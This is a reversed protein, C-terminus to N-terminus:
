MSRVRGRRISPRIPFVSSRPIQRHRMGMLVKLIGAMGSANVAHGVNPKHTGIACFRKKETYERFAEALGRIEIQDGLSTGTGHAELYGLTEPRVGSSEYVERGLRTQSVASPATIGNTRGDQSVASGRVVGYIHDRDRVAESLPKLIVAGAGEGLVLGNANRDFTRCKGEPSLLNLESSMVLYKPGAMVFVGGALAM